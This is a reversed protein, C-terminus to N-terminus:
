KTYSIIPESSAMVLNPEHAIEVGHPHIITTDHHFRAISPLSVHRKAAKILVRLETPPPARLIRPFENFFIM